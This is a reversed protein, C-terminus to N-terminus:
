SFFPFHRWVKEKWPSHARPSWSKWMPRPSCPGDDKAGPCPSPCQAHEMHHLQSGTHSCPGGVVSDALPKTAVPGQLPLQHHPGAQAGRLVVSSGEKSPAPFLMHHSERRFLQHSQRSAGQPVAWSSPGLCLGTGRGELGPKSTCWDACRSRGEQRLRPLLHGLSSPAKLNPQM